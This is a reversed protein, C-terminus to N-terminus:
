NNKKSPFKKKLIAVDTQLEDIEDDHKFVKHTLLIQEQRMARLEGMMEDMRSFFEEKTPLYKLKEEIRVEFREDFVSIMLEKLAKLDQLTFSM